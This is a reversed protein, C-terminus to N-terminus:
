RGVIQGQAPAAKNIKMIIPKGDKDPLWSTGSMVIYEGNAGTNDLGIDGVDTKTYGLPGRMRDWEAAVLDRFSDEPMGYPLVVKARPTNNGFMDPKWDAIGGTAAGIAQRVIQSNPGAQPNNLGKQAAAAAYYARFAQYAAAEADPHNRYANGVVSTWEQRLLTEQPMPFASGKGGDTGKGAKTPNLLDEGMAIMRANDASGAVAINGVLATVPSDPRISNLLASYVTDDYIASRMSALQEVKKDAPLMDLQQGMFAAEQKTLLKATGYKEAMGPLAASRRKLEETFGAQDQPDLPKLSFDGSQLAYAVPDTQRAQIIGAAASARIGQNAASVAFNPDSSSVKGQIVELLDATSRGNLSSVASATQRATTYRAYEHEAVVPDKFAVAFEERSREPGSPAVGTRAMAEANQIEYRLAVSTNQRLDDVKRQAYEGWKLREELTGLKVPISYKTGGDSWEVEPFQDGGKGIDKLVNLAAVPQRDIWSVVAANVLSRRAGDKLKEKSAPDIAAGNIASSWKGMEQEFWAPNGHVLTASKQVGDDIQSGVYRTREGAEYGMAARGYAERSRAMHAKILNRSFESPANKALGESYEDFKKLYDPTFNAAGPQAANQADKLYTAMDLDAQSTANAAHIRGETEIREREAQEQVQERRYLGAALDNLGAGVAQLGRGVNSADIRAASAPSNPVIQREYVPIRPM